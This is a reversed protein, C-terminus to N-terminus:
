DFLNNELIIDAYAEGLIFADKTNYHYTNYGGKDADGIELSLGHDTFTGDVIYNKEYNEDSPNLQGKAAIANKKANIGSNVQQQTGYRNKAGDYITCDLFAINKGDEDKAYPAYDTRFRAILEEMQTQYNNNGTDSEGQHWIFGKIVPKKGADEIVKLCNNTYRQLLYYLSSTANESESKNEDPYTKWNAGDTKEFGSGSFACKALHIPEKGEYENYLKYAMGLEPGFYDGTGGDGVGMGVTTPKFNPTLRAQPTSTDPSATHAQTWGNPYYFGYYSCLVNDIGEDITDYNGYISDLYEKVLNKGNLRWNSSGEMNSQGSMVFVPVEDVKPKTDTGPNTNTNTSNNANNQGNNNKPDIETNGCAVLGLFAASFLTLLMKKNM